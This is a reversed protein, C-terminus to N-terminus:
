GNADRRRRVMVYAILAGAVVVGIGISVLVAPQRYPQEAIRAAAILDLANQSHKLSETFNDQTLADQALTIETKAQALDQLATASTFPETSASAFQLEALALTSNAQYYDQTDESSIGHITFTHNFVWLNHGFPEGDFIYGVTWNGLMTAVPTGAISLDRNSKLDSSGGYQWTIDTRKFISGSPDIWVSISDFTANKPIDYFDFEAHVWVSTDFSTFDNTPDVCDYSSTNYSRCTAVSRYSWAYVPPVFRVLSAAILPLVLMILVSKTRTLRNM